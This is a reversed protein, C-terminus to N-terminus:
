FGAAEEKARLAGGILSVARRTARQADFEEHLGESRWNGSADQSARMSMPSRELDEAEERTHRQTRADWVAWLGFVLTLLLM